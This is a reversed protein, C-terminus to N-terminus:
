PQEGKVPDYVRRLELGRAVKTGSLKVVLVLTKTAPDLIYTERLTGIDPFKREIVLQADKWRAVIEIDKGVLQPERIKRGDTHYTGMQGSIDSIAVTSDTQRILLQLVPRVLALVATPDAVEMVPRAASRTSPSYVPRPREPPPEGADSKEANLRWLGSLSPAGSAQAAADRATGAALALLLLAKVLTSVRSGM